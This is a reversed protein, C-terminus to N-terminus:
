GLSGPVGAGKWCSRNELRRLRAGLTTVHREIMAGTGNRILPVNLEPSGVASQVGFLQERRAAELADIRQEVMQPWRSRREVHAFPLARRDFVHGVIRQVVAMKQGLTRVFRTFRDVRADGQQSVVVQPERDGIHARAVLAEIPVHATVLQEENVAPRPRQLRGEALQGVAQM